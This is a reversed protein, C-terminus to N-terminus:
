VHCWKVEGTRSCKQGTFLHQKFLKKLKKNVLEVNNLYEVVEPDMSACASLFFVICFAYLLKM